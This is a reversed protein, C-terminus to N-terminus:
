PTKRPLVKKEQKDGTPTPLMLGGQGATGGQADMRQRMQQQMAELQTIPDTTKAYGKPTEFTSAPITEKRWLMLTEKTSMTGRPTEIVTVSQVPYGELERWQDFLKKYEPDKPDNLAIRMEDIMKEIPLGADKSMWFSTTMGPVPLKGMVKVEYANYTTKGAGQITLVQGTRSLLNPPVQINGDAKMQVGMVILSVAALKRYREVPIEWYTKAADNVGTVMGKELDIIVTENRMPNDRKFRKGEHWSRVTNVMLEQTMPNPMEAKHEVYYGALATTPALLVSFVAASLIASLSRM